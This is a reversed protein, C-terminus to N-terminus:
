GILGLKKRAVFAEYIDKHLRLVTDGDKDNILVLKPYRIPEEIFAGDMRSLKQLLWMDLVLSKLESQTIQDHM